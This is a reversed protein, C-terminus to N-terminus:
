FRVSLVRRGVYTHHEGDAVQFRGSYEDSEMGHGRQVIPLMRPRLLYRLLASGGVPAAAQQHDM